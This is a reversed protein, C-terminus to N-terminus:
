DDDAEDEDPYKDLLAHTREWWDDMLWCDPKASRLLDLAEQLDDGM